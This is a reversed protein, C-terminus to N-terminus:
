FSYSATVHTFLDNSAGSIFNPGGNYFASNVAGDIQFKDWKYGLGSSWSYNGSASSTPKVDSNDNSTSDMSYGYGAGGRWVLNDSLWVEASVLFGPFGLSTETAADADDNAKESSQDFSLTGYAAVQGKDMKYVPGAGLLVGLESTSPGATGDTDSGTNHMGFGVLYGLDTAEGLSSYGRASLGITMDSTTTEPDAGDATSNMQISLATELNMESMTYGVDLGINMNSAGEGDVKDGGMGLSLGVGVADPGMPMSYIMDLMTPAGPDASAAAKVGYTASDDGVIFWAADAGMDIRVLNRYDAAAQPYTGIDTVDKILENGSLGARRAANAQSFATLVFAAALGFTLIRTMWVKM